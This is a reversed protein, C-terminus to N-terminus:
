DSIRGYRENLVMIYKKKYKESLFSNGILGVVKDKNRELRKFVGDIQRAALGLVQGFEIFRARNFKSKRANLTLALEEKDGPNVIAVNLLDYAPALNWTGNRTIMSFNKLHMDNNGTLFCFISLEYFNLLDLMTNEAYMSIAKGVKEMSGKYKDFAELVQFMDLMHIKEGEATRDIRKTIYALEGSSLRILSSQVVPLGFSEAMRMTLHENQPMEPYDEHPPKLIYNGGLTGVITLRGNSGDALADKVLTLSLKPQVGPVTVHRQVVAAALEAMQALNYGLEPPEDTGFFERSCHPHFDNLRSDLQKCCYLCHKSM